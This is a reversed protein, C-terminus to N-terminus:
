PHSYNSKDADIIFGRPASSRKEAVGKLIQASIIARAVGTVRNGM